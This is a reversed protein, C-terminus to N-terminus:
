RNGARGRMNPPRASARRAARTKIPQDHSISDSRELTGILVMSANSRPLVSGFIDGIVLPLASSRTSTTKM